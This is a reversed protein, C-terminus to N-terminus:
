FCFLLIGYLLTYPPNSVKLAVHEGTHRDIASVVFGFSGCGLFKHYDYIDEFKVISGEHDEFELSPISTTQLKEKMLKRLRIEEMPKGVMAKAENSDEPMAQEEM